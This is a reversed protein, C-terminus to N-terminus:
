NLITANQVIGKTTEVVVQGTNGSPFAWQVYFYVGIVIALGILIKQIAEGYQSYQAIKRNQIDRQAKNFIENIEETDSLPKEPYCLVNNEHAVYCKFMHKGYNMRHLKTPNIKITTLKGDGNEFSFSTGKINEHVEIDGSNRMLFLVPEKLTVLHEVSSFLKEKKLFLTKVNRNFEEKLESYDNKNFEEKLQKKRRVM